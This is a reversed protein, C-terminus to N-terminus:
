IQQCRTSCRDKLQNSCSCNRDNCVKIYPEVVLFAVTFHRSLITRVPVPNYICGEYETDNIGCGILLPKKMLGRSFYWALLSVFTLVVIGLTSPANWTMLHFVWPPDSLTNVMIVVIAGLHCEGQTRNMTRHQLVSAPFVVGTVSPLCHYQTALGSGIHM